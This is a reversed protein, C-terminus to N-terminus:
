HGLEQFFQRFHYSSTQPYYERNNMNNYIDIFGGITGTSVGIPTVYKNWQYQINDVKRQPIVLKGLM